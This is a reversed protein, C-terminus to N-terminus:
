AKSSATHQSLPIPQDELPFGHGRNCIGVPNGTSQFGGSVQEGCPDLHAEFPRFWSGCVLAFTQFAWKRSGFVSKLFWVIGCLLSNGKQLMWSGGNYWSARYWEEAKACLKARFSCRTFDTLPRSTTPTQKWVSLGAWALVISERCACPLTAVWLSCCIGLTPCWAAILFPWTWPVPCVTPVSLVCHACPTHHKELTFFHHLGLHCSMQCLARRILIFIQMRDGSDMYFAWPLLAYRLKLVPSISIPIGPTRTSALRALDSLESNLSFHQRWFSTHLTVSSAVGCQGRAM